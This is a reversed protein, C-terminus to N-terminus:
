PAGDRPSLLVVATLEPSVVGSGPNAAINREGEDGEEPYREQDGCEGTAIGSSGRNWGFDLAVLGAFGM